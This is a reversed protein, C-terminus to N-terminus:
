SGLDLHTVPPSFFLRKKEDTFIQGKAKMEGRGGKGEPSDCLRDCWTPASRPLGTSGEDDNQGVIACLM